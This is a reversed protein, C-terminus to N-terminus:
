LIKALGRFDWVLKALQSKFSNLFELARRVEFLEDVVEKRKNSAEDGKVKTLKSLEEELYVEREELEKLEKRAFESL